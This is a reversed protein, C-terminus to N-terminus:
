RKHRIRHTYIRKFTGASLALSYRDNSNLYEMIYLLVDDNLSCINRM